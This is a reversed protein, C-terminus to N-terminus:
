DLGKLSYIQSRELINTGFHITYSHCQLDTASCIIIIIASVENNYTLTMVISMTVIMVIAM